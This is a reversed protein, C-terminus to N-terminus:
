RSEMIGRNSLQSPLPGPTFTMPPHYAVLLSFEIKRMMMVAHQAMGLRCARSSPYPETKAELIDRYIEKRLGVHLGLLLLNEGNVVGDHKRTM